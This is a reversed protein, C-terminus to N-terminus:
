KALLRPAAYPGANMSANMLLAAGVFTLSERIIGDDPLPSADLGRAIVALQPMVRTRYALPTLAGRALADTENKIADIHSSFAGAVLPNTRLVDVMRDMCTVLFPKESLSADNCVAKPAQPPTGARAAKLNPLVLSAVAFVAICGVAQHFSHRFPNQM